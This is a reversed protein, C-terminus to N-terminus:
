EGFVEKLLENSFTHARYVEEGNKFFIFTLVEIIKFEKALM